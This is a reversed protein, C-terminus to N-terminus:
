WSKSSVSMSNITSLSDCVPALSLAKHKHVRFLDIIAANILCKSSAQRLAYPTRSKIGLIPPFSINRPPVSCRLGDLRKAAAFANLLPKSASISIALNLVVKDGSTGSLSYHTNWVAPLRPISNPIASCFQSQSLQNASIWLAPM